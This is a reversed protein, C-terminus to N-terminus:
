RTSRCAWGFRHCGRRSSRPFPTWGTSPCTQRGLAFMRVILRAFNASSGGHNDVLVGALFPELVERRLPGAVDAADLSETLTTDPQRMVGRPDLLVRGAWRRLSALEGPKLYGSRLTEPLLRPERVPDALISLGNDRHVLVGAGFSQLALSKLDVWRRVAPYAPNLVQFDRDCRFGDVLDTRVRGGITDAAEIVM